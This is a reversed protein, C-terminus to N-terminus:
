EEARQQVSRERTTQHQLLFIATDLLHEVVHFLQAVEVDDYPADPLPTRTPLHRFWPFVEALPSQPM